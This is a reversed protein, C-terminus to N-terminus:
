FNQIIMFFPFIVILDFYELSLVSITFYHMFISLFFFYEVIFIVYNFRFLNKFTPFLFYCLVPLVPISLLYPSLLNLGFIDTIPIFAGFLLCIDQPQFKLIGM